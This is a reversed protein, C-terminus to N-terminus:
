RVFFHLLHQHTGVVKIGQFQSLFDAHWLNRRFEGDTIGQMGVEEQMKVADRICRDEVERLEAATIEGKQHQERAQRLEPPRLLSGVHNARFPAKKEEAM